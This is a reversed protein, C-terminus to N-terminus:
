LNISEAMKFAECFIITNRLAKLFYINGQDGKVISISNYRYYMLFRNVFFSLFKM